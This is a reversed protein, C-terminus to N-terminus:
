ILDAFTDEIRRFVYVACALLAATLATSFGAARWDLSHGALAARFGELIGTLPNIILIWRWREPIVSVPYIVPSAFM